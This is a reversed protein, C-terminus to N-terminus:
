PEEPAAADRGPNTRCLPLHVTFTIQGQHYSASLKGRHGRAIAQATSLGIGYGAAGSRAPDARYFRDFLRPIQAPDLGACPNSVTLVAWRGRCTLAVQITGNADCYKVANDLLLTLLRSIQEGSGAVTVDPTLHAELTKGAAEALPLFDEVAQGAAQSLSVPLLAGPASAEETRALEILHAVLRDLRRVQHHTSNLWQNDEGLTTRLLDTNASIIALPTKLEHSADTVFRRQRELNEAFPRIARKSLLLLLLFVISACATAALITLRLVNGVGQLQVFCDLALITSDGADDQFIVYRYHDLYGSTREQGLISSVRQIVTNRDLAAIHELDVEKVEQDATLKVVFYRTEFPTELTIQFGGGAHPDAQGDPVPFHGGYQYLMELATDARHTSICYYGVNIVLCLLTLTAVLSAMAILIFRRRLSRIM